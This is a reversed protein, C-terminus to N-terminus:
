ALRVIESFCDNLWLTKEHEWYKLPIVNKENAPTLNDHALLVGMWSLHVADYKQAILAWDPALDGSSTTLENEKVLEEWDEFSQIEYVRADDAIVPKYLNIEINTGMGSIIWEVIEIDSTTMSWMGAWTFQGQGYINRYEIFYKSQLYQDYQTPNLWVEQLDFNCKSTLRNVFNNVLLEAIPLRESSHLSMMAIEDISDPNWPSAVGVALLIYKLIDTCELDNGSRIVADIAALDCYGEWNLRDVDGREALELLALVISGVPSETIQKAQSLNVRAM